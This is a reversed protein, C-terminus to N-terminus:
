RSIGTGRKRKCSRNYVRDRYSVTLAKVLFGLRHKRVGSSTRMSSRIRARILLLGVFVFLRVHRAFLEWDKKHVLTVVRGPSQTCPGKM